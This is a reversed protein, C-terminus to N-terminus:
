LETGYVKSAVLKLRRSRNRTVAVLNFTRGSWSLFRRLLSTAENGDGRFLQAFTLGCSTNALEFMVKYGSVQELLQKYKKKKQKKKRCSIRMPAQPEPQTSPGPTAQLPISANRM